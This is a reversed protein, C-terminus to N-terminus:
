LCPLVNKLLNTCRVLRTAVSPTQSHADGRKVITSIRRIEEDELEKPVEEIMTLLSLLAGEDDGCREAIQYARELVRKAEKYRGKKCLVRGQTRLSESFLAEEEGRELAVVSELIAKEALELNGKTLYFRALTEDLQACRVRDDFHKFLIRARKLHPEAEVLQNFAQLLHGRNNELAAVRYHHGIAEALFVGQMYHQSAEDLYNRKHHEIALEGLTTAMETHFHARIAPDVLVVNRRAENLRALSDHLRGAKMEAFGMRLLITSKLNRHEDLLLDLAAAYAQCALDFMGERDYCRGLESTADAVCNKLGLQEFISIAGSLLAEAHKQGRALQTSSAVRGTLQGATLLLDAAIPLSLSQLRPWQGVTFWRQLAFSAGRINGVEIQQRAIVCLIQVEDDSSLGRLGLHDPSGQFSKSWPTRSLDNGNNPFRNGEGRDLGRLFLYAANWQHLRPFTKELEAARKKEKVVSALDFEERVQLLSRREHSIVTEDGDSRAAVRPQRPTPLFYGTALRLYCDVVAVYSWTEYSELNIAEQFCDTAREITERTHEIRYICGDSYHRKADGRQQSVETPIIRKVLAPFRPDSRLPDVKPDVNLNILLHSRCEYARELCHFAKDIDGLSTHVCALDYHSVHELKMLECLKAVLKTADEHKGSVALVSALAAIVQTRGNSLSLARKYQLEADSLKGNQQNAWGLWCHAVEFQDDMEITVTCQSIADEYRRAFYFGYGLAANAILSLPDIELARKYMSIAEDFRGEATLHCGYYLYVYLYNPKLEISRKFCLEAARSDWDGHLKAFGLAAHGEALTQDITLAKLAAAKARSFALTSDLAGYFGLANYADALGAYSIAYDPDSEIAREFYDVSKELGQWSRKSWYFRGKLYSQYAEPNETHRKTPQQKEGAEFTLQLAETIRTVIQQQMDLLATVETNFTEGWVQCNTSVDVLETGIILRNNELPRIRGGFVWQVGLERGIEAYNFDNGKFRFVTSKATVRLQPFRSLSNILSDTIDESLPEVHQNKASNSFPLIALSRFQSVTESRTQPIPCDPQLAQQNSVIEKVTGVFRYGRRPVTEIYQPVNGEGNLARRIFFIHQALNGEEVIESPWVESMLADKEVVHGCSRVLVLLTTLAKPALPVLRGERLLVCEASDLCFPGFYYLTTKEM